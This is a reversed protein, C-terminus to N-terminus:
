RTITVRGGVNVTVRRQEGGPSQLLITGAANPNGFPSVTMLDSGFTTNVLDIRRPLPRAVGTYDTWTGGSCGLAPTWTGPRPLYQIEYTDTGPNFQVRWCRRETRARQEVWRVETGVARAAGALRRNDILSRGSFALGLVIALIALAVVTEVLSFGEEARRRRLPRAIRDRGLRSV